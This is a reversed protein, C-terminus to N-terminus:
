FFWFIVMFHPSSKMTDENQYNLLFPFNCIHFILTRTDDYINEETFELEGELEEM